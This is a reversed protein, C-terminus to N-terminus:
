DQSAPTPGGRRATTRQPDLRWLQGSAGSGPEVARGQRLCPPQAEAAVFRPVSARRPLRARPTRWPALRRALDSSAVTRAVVPTGDQGSISRSRFRAPPRERVTCRRIRRPWSRTAALDRLLRDVCVVPLTSAAALLAASPTAAAPILVIGDVRQAILLDVLEDENDTSGESSSVILLYERLRAEREIATALQGSVPDSLRQVVLGICPLRTSRLSSAATSRHHRGDRHRPPGAGPGSRTRRQGSTLRTKISVNAQTGGTALSPWGCVDAPM